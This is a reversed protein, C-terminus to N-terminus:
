QLLTGLIAITMGFQASPGTLFRSKLNQNENEAISFGM